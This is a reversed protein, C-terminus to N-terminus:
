AAEGIISVASYLAAAVFIAAEGYSRSRVMFGAMASCLAVSFISAYLVTM